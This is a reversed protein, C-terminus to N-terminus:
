PCRHLRGDFGVFFGTHPNYSRYRWMCWRVADHHHHHRWGRHRGRDDDSGQHGRVFGGVVEGIFGGIGQAAAPDAAALTLLAAIAFRTM